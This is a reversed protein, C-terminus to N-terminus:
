LVGKAANVIVVLAMGAAVMSDQESAFGSSKIVHKVLAEISARDEIPVKFRMLEHTVSARTTDVVPLDAVEESEDFGLEDLNISASSFIGALDQEDFALTALLQADLDRLIVSLKLSDDEGYRGNDALGLAKARSDDINELVIVPVTEFAMQIAKRARHEGGIIELSNDEKLRCVVPKIFGFERLSAELRAEM